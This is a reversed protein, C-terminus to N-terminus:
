GFSHALLVVIGVVGVAALACCIAIQMRLVRSIRNWDAKDDICRKELAVLKASMDLLMLNSAQEAAGTASKLTAVAQDLRHRDSAFDDELAQRVGAPLGELVATTMEARSLIEALRGEFDAKTVLSTAQLAEVGQKVQRVALGLTGVEDQVTKITKTTERCQRQILASESRVEEVVQEALADASRRIVEAVPENVMSALMTRLEGNAKEIDNDIM